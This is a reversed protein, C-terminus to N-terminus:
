ARVEFLSVFNNSCPLKRVGAFGAEACLERVTAEPMGLTGLGEGGNALSTTLCYTISMGYKVTAQPGLNDYPNDAATIEQLVYIGGSRLNQRINRLAERPQAMDHIVDFTTIVDFERPLGKSADMVEFHVRESLGAHQAQATAAEVQPAFADFGVFHSNPYAQAMRLLATGNGCGVDAVEVGQELMTVLDPMDPIWRSLLFNDYRLGSSRRMGEYLAPHFHSQHVGGGNRFAEILEDFPEMGRTMLEWTGGQYFPSSPDALSAVHEPPLAYVGTKNDVDLYSAAAMAQLWERAYREQIQAREAFTTSNAPGQKALIEFLGLKDGIACMRTTIAGALDGLVRTNFAKAKDRDFEDNSAM